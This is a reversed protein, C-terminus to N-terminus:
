CGAKDWRRLTDLSIGLAPDVESALILQQKPMEARSGTGLQASVADISLSPAFAHGVQARGLLRALAGAQQAQNAAIQGIPLRLSSTQM